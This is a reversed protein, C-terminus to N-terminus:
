PKHGWVTLLKWTAQFDPQQMETIAQQYLAEYDDGASGWKQVFPRAQRLVSRADQSFAQWEATGARYALTSAHTQVRECGYQQLLSALHDLM